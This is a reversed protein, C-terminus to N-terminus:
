SNEQSESARRLRRRVRNIHREFSGSNLLQAIVLQSLTSVTCSSESIKELFAETDDAPLIM